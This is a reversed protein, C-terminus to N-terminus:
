SKVLPVQFHCLSLFLKDSRELLLNDAAVLNAGVAASICPAFIFAASFRSVDEIAFAFRMLHLSSSRNKAETM